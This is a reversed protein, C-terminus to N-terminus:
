NDGVVCVQEPTRTSRENMARKWAIFMIVDWLLYHNDRHGRVHDSWRRRIQHVDFLDDEKLSRESLLDEAWERLAGRLWHQLPIGFGMKPRETLSPPVYRALLKRLAWKTVNDRLKYKFPMRWVYEVVRHDLLPVRAELSVAMSARDVKTLIDDPLYSVLDVYMVQEEFRSLQPWGDPNNPVTEPECSNPVVESPRWHTLTRMYIEAQDRSGILDAIKYLKNGVDSYRYRSPLGSSVLSSFRNYIQPPVSRIAGAALFRFAAPTRRISKWVADTWLYRNYGCFLEDGGDGSLAVTVHQRAMQCVLYTPLQSSDGFPEDFMNALRPVTRLAEEETIYIEHHETGLHKAVRSAHKAEDFGDEEFGITFTKVKNGSIAQMLSVVVSSDIGGSLFGGLPVDSLMRLRVSERLCDELGLLLEHESGQLPNRAAAEVTKRASWFTRVEPFSNCSKWTAISGPGLKNTGKLISHPAPVYNHRMYLALANRDIDEPIGPYRCLAKLESAFVMRRGDCHYYLPKIGLRDRVIHLEKRACDWLAFAFMGVFEHLAADLGWSEVAELIVETDSHGRWSQEPLRRRIEEYNYVEGNFVIVFRKSKSFMPQHGEQSLDLIALRRHVFGLGDSPNWLYGADDPGRYRIANGMNSLIKTPDVTEQTWFGAVGCM